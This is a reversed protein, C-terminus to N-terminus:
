YPSQKGAKPKEKKTTGNKVKKKSKYFIERTDIKVPKKIELKNKM